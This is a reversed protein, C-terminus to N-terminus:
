LGKKERIMAKAAQISQNVTESAECTFSYNDGPVVIQLTDWERNAHIYSPKLCGSCGKRKRTLIHEDVQHETRICTIDSYFFDRTFEIVDDSISDLVYTYTYVQSSSFFIWTVEYINSVSNIVGKINSEEQQIRIDDYNFKFGSIVVPPIEKIQSEDLGIKNIARQKLDLRSVLRQIHEVYEEMTMVNGKLCGKKRLCGKNYLDLPRVLYNICDCQDKSKGRKLMKRDLAFAAESNPNKFFLNLLSM